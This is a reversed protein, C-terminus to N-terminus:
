FHSRHGTLRTAAPEGGAREEVPDARGGQAQGGRGASDDGKNASSTDRSRQTQTRMPRWSLHVQTANTVGAEELSVHLDELERFLLFFFGNYMPVEM